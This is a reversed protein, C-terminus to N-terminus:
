RSLRASVTRVPAQTLRSAAGATRGPCHNQSTRGTRPRSAQTALGARAVPGTTASARSARRVTSGGGSAATRRAIASATAEQSTDPSCRHNRATARPAGAADEAPGPIPANASAVTTLLRATTTGSPQPTRSSVM